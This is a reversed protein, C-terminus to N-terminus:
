SCVLLKRVWFGLSAGLVNVKQHAAQFVWIWLLFIFVLTTSIMYACFVIYVTSFTSPFYM